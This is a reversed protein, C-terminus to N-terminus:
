FSWYRKQTKGLQCNKNKQHFNLKTLMKFFHSFFLKLLFSKLNKYYFIEEVMFIESIKKRLGNKQKNTNKLLNKKKSIKLNIKRSNKKTPKEIVFDKKRM